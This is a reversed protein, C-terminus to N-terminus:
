EEVAAFRLDTHTFDGGKFLLPADHVKAIAYAMCDGYNLKAPRGGFRALADTAVALHEPGFPVVRVNPRSLLLDTEPWAGRGLRKRVVLRLELATPAGVIILPEVALRRVYLGADEERFIIAALASTDAVIM